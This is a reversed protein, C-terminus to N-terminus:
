GAGEEAAAPDADPAPAFRWAHHRAALVIGGLCAGFGVVLTVVAYGLATGVAGRGLLQDIELALSSFTTFGGLVGTGLGLRLLRGRPSEEGRRVLGELLVGLLFAGVVNATLTAVPWGHAPSVVLGLGYRGSAGLAGGLAVIAVLLPRRHAPLSM